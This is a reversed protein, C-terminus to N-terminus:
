SFSNRFISTEEGWTENKLALDKYGLQTLHLIAPLKVRSDENFPM